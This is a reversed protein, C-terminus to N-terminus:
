TIYGEEDHTLRKEEKGFYNAEQHSLAYGYQSQIGDPSYGVRGHDYDQLCVFHRVFDFYRLIGGQCLGPPPAEWFLQTPTHRGSGM